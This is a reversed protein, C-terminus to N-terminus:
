NIITKKGSPPDFDECVPIDKPELWKKIDEAFLRELWRKVYRRYEHVPTHVGHSFEALKGHLLLDVHCILTQDGDEIQVLGDPLLTYRRKEFISM